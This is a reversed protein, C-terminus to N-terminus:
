LNQMPASDVPSLDYLRKALHATVVVATQDRVQKGLMLLKWISHENYKYMINLFNSLPYPAVTM